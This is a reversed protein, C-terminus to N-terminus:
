QEENGKKAIEKKIESVASQTIRGSLRAVRKAIALGKRSTAQLTDKNLVKEMDELVPRNDGILMLICILGSSFICVFAGLGISVGISRIEQNLSIDLISFIFILAAFLITAIKSVKGYEEKSIIALILIIVYTAGLYYGDKFIENVANLYEDQFQFWPMFISVIGFTCM